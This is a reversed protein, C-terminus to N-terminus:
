WLAQSSRLRCHCSKERWNTGCLEVCDMHVSSGRSRVRLLLRLAAPLSTGGARRGVSRFYELLLVTSPKGGPGEWCGRKGVEVRWSARHCDTDDTHM